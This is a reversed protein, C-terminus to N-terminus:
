GCPPRRGATAALPPCPCTPTRPAGGAAGPEATAVALELSTGGTDTRHTLEVVTDAGLPLRTTYLDLTTPADLTGSVLLSSGGRWADGFDFTVTPRHGTTRM